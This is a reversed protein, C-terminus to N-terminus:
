GAPIDHEDPSVKSSLGTTDSTGAPTDSKKTDSEPAGRDMTAPKMIQEKVDEAARNLRSVTKGWQRAVEPLRHAGFLLLIAVLVVMLEGGGIMNGIFSLPVM